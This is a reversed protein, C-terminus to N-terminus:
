NRRVILYRIVDRDIRLKENLSKIAKGDSELVFHLFFGSSNKKIPYSLEIKGWEEASVVKAGLDKVQGEIREVFNKKKTAAVDGPLVLTLEYNM